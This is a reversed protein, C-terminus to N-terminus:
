STAVAECHQCLWMMDIELMRCVIMLDMVPIRGSGNEWKGYMQYTINCAQALDTQALKLGLRKARLLQGLEEYFITQNDEARHGM